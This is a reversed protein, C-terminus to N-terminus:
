FDPRDKWAFPGCLKKGAKIAADHVINIAREYDPDGQKFGSFNSLDGSAAFVAHVGPVKAIEDANKLGELTEIMLILVLNDNITNRYGGPVNGWMDPGFANDGGLSRRGLPPFYAWKVAERAEEVTDVTPVVLVLAGGDLAQQIEREDTYAVRVGPVAKAHPCTQWARWVEAWSAGQHQMETWIFDYGADAMACYTSPAVVGRVTGGVLKGGQMLKLKAPNWIKAGAPPTFATGYIWTSDFFPGQNVAGPPAVQRAGSDQGAPAALPFQAQQAQAHGATVTFMTCFTLMAIPYRM